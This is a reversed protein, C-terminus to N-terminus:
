SAQSPLLAVMPISAEPSPEGSSSGEDLPVSVKFTNEEWAHIIGQCVDYDQALLADATHPVPEGDNELNWDVLVSILGEAVPRLYELPAADEGLADKADSIAMVQAVTPMRTVVELGALDSDEFRLKIVKKGEFGM